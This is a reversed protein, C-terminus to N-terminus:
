RDSWDCLEGACHAHPPAGDARTAIGAAIGALVVLVAALVWRRVHARGPVHDRVRAREARRAGLESNLRSRVRPGATATSGCNTCARVGHEPVVYGANCVTCIARM